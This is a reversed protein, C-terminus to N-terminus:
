NDVIVAVGFLAKTPEVAGVSVIVVGADYHTAYETTGSREGNVDCRGGEFRHIELDARWVGKPV